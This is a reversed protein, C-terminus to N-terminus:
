FLHWDLRRLFFVVNFMRSYPQSLIKKRIIPLNMAHFLLKVIFLLHSRTAGKSDTLM